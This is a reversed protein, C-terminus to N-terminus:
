LRGGSRGHAQMAGKGRVMWDWSLSTSLVLLVAGTAPSCDALLMFHGLCWFSKTIKYTAKEESRGQETRRVMAFAPHPHRTPLLDRLVTEVEPSM